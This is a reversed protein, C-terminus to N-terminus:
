SKAGGAFRANKGKWFNMLLHAFIGSSFGLLASALIDSPWHVGRYIRSIGVFMALIFAISAVLNRNGPFTLALACAIAFSTATHGSPFSHIFIKEEQTVFAYPLTSPRIRDITFKFLQAIVSSLNWGIFCTMMSERYKKETIWFLLLISVQLWGLGLWTFFRFLADAVPSKLGRNILEFVALDWEWLSLM